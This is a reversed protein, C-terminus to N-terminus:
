LGAAAGADEDSSDEEPILNEMPFRENLYPDVTKLKEVAKECEKSKERKLVDVAFRLKEFLLLLERRSEEKTKKHLEWFYQPDPHFGLVFKEAGELTSIDLDLLEQQPSKAKPPHSATTDPM